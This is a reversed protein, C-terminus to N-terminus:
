AIEKAEDIDKAFDTERYNEFYELLINIEKIAIEINMDKSQLKKSVINVENLVEYWIVISVLFDFEGLEKEAISNAENAIAADKDKEGVELLPQIQGFFNKGKVYNNAMDCLTLNFSHCGCPNYFARPNEKLFRMQVGQHLETMNAGNDYGQGHMNNVDLDIRKLKELTIDFLGKGRTDNVKLLGGLMFILEHQIKHGLYHVHLEYSTIRRVHEKIIPDFEELMEILGLVNGNGKQYLKEKSRRFTFSHKALFEVVAVIRLLVQM